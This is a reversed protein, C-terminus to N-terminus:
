GVIQGVYRHSVAVASGARSNSALNGSAVFPWPTSIVIESMEPDGTAFGFKTM